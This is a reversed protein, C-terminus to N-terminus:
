VVHRSLGHVMHRSAMGQTSSSQPEQRSAYREFTAPVVVQAIPTVTPCEAWRVVVLMPHLGSRSAAPWERVAAKAATVIEM